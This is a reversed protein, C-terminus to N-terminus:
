CYHVPSTDMLIHTRDRVASHTLSRANGHSTTYTAFSAQIRHLQPQSSQGSAQSNGYAVSTTRFFAFFFFFFFFFFFSSAFVLLGQTSICHRFIKWRAKEGIKNLYLQCVASHLNLAYLVTVQSVYM